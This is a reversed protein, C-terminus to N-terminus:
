GNKSTPIDYYQMYTNQVELIQYKSKTTWNCFMRINNICQTMLIKKEKIQSKYHGTQAHM